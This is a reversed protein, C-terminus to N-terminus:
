PFVGIAWSLAGSSSPGGRPITMRDGMGDAPRRSTPRCPATWPPPIPIQPGRRVPAPRTRRPRRARGLRAGQPRCRTARM